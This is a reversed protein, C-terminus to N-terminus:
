LASLFRRYDNLDREFGSLATGCSCLDGSAVGRDVIRMLEGTGVFGEVSGLTRCLLTSASRGMGAIYLVHVPGADRDDPRGGFPM